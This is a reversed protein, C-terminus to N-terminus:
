TKYVVLALGNWRGSRQARRSPTVVRKGEEEGYWVLCVGEGM